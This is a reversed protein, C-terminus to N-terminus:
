LRPASQTATSDGDVGLDGAPGGIESEIEGCAQSLAEIIEEERGLLRQTPLPVTVALKGGFGDHVVKGLASIGSSHEERDVAYGTRRIEKLEAELKSRSTLTNPTQKPLRSPVLKRVEETTLEALLAKGNATCYAPFTGGIASVARLRQPATVQDLFLVSDVDLVALDVTENLDASLRELYPRVSARLDLREAAALRVLGPGLRIRGEASSVLLDEAQLAAVIRHVTSRPLEVDKVLNALTVGRPHGSLARLVNAARAIVKIRNRDDPATSNQEDAVVFVRSV